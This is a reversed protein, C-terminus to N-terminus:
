LVAAELTSGGSLLNVCFDNYLVQTARPHLEQNDDATEERLTPWSPPQHPGM